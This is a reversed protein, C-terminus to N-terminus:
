QPKAKCRDRPAAQADTITTTAAEGKCATLRSDEPNTATPMLKDRMANVAFRRLVCSKPVEGM